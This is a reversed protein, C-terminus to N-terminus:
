QLNANYTEVCLLTVSSGDAKIFLPPMRTSPFMIIIINTAYQTHTLASVHRGTHTAIHVDSTVHLPACSRYFYNVLCDCDVSVSCTCWLSLCFYFIKLIYQFPISFSVINARFFHEILFRLVTEYYSFNIACTSYRRFDWGLGCSGAVLQILFNM